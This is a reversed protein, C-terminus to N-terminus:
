WTDSSEDSDSSSETSDSLGGRPLDGLNRPEKEAAERLRAVKRRWFESTSEPFGIEKFLDEISYPEVQEIYKSLFIKLDQRDIKHAWAVLEVVFSVWNLVTESDMCGEHQRFEITRKRPNWFPQRLNDISYAQNVSGQYGGFMEVIENITSTSLMVDLLNGRFGRVGLNSTSRPPACYNHAQRSRHLLSSIQSQFVWITAMLHQLPVRAFGKTGHGVHVHLGCTRNVLLDFHKHLAGLMNDIEKFGDPGFKLVPSQIELACYYADDERMEQILNITCDTAVVWTRYSESPKVVGPPLSETGIFPDDMKDVDSETLIELGTEAILTDRVFEWIHTLRRFPRKQFRIGFEFEVGFTLDQSELELPISPSHISPSATTPTATPPTATPPTSM